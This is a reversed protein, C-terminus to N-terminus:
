SCTWLRAAIRGPRCRRSCRTRTWSAAARLTSCTAPPKMADFIRANVIGHTEPTYPTLLVLYDFGRVAQALEDRGFMRDFGPVSRVVSSIGEVKMGFAKCKPALDAAIAGIGFIGGDQRQAPGGHVPGVQSERNRLARPLNRSLALMLMIAAESMSDAMIQGHMNTVLVDERLVARRHDRGRGDSAQVWKLKVGEKLVHDSM